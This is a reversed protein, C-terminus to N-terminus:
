ETEISGDSGVCARTVKYESARRLTLCIEDEEVRNSSIEIVFFARESKLAVDGPLGTKIWSRVPLTTTSTTTRGDQQIVITVLRFTGESYDVFALKYFDIWKFPSRISHQQPVTDSRLLAHGKQAFIDPSVKMSPDAATSLDYLWYANGRSEEAFRPYWKFFALFRANPSLAMHRGLFAGVLTRTKLSYIYCAMTDPSVHATMILLHKWKSVDFASKTALPVPIKSVVEWGNTMRHEHRLTATGDQLAELSLRSEGDEWLTAHEQPQPDVPETSALPASGLLIAVVLFLVIRQIHRHINMKDLHLSLMYRTM